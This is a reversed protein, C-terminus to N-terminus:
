ASLHQHNQEEVWKQLATVPVRVARGVHITPLVGAAILEYVKTRGLGLAEAVEPVRLLLRQTAAEKQHEMRKKRESDHRAVFCGVLWCIDDSGRVWASIVHQVEGSLDPVEIGSADCLAIAQQTATVIAFAGQSVVFPSWDARGQGITSTRDSLQWYSLAERMKMLWYGDWCDMRVRWAQGAPDCRVRREYLHHPCRNKQRKWGDDQKAGANNNAGRASEDQM